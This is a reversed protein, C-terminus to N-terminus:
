LAYQVQNDSHTSTLCTFQANNVAYTAQKVLL